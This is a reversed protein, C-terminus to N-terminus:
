DLNLGAARGQLLNNISTNATQPLNNANITAVAGTLDKKRQTGYGVVVVENMDTASTTMKVNVSSGDGVKQEEDSYGVSSFSLVDGKAATISFDGSENTISVANTK